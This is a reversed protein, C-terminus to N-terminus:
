RGSQTNFGKIPSGDLTDAYWFREGTPFKGDPRLCGKVMLIEFTTKRLDLYRRAELYKYKKGRIPYGTPM